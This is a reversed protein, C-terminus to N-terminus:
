LGITGCCQWYPFPHYVSAADPHCVQQDRLHYPLPFSRGATRMEAAFQAAYPAPGILAAKDMDYDFVELEVMMGKGAAYDCVARTTKLLQAFAEQRSEASWKGALFAIGRAGVSEAEDVAELLTAEAKKRGEEDLDNPNLKPGLLRPQAGYCVTLHSQSLLKVAQERTQGDPFKGIEIADFFDDCAIERISTLLEKRPHSMWQITGIQFYRHISENM